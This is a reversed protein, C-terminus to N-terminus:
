VHDIIRKGCHPCFKYPKDSPYQYWGGQCQSCYRRVVPIFEEKESFPEYSTTPIAKELFNVLTHAFDTQNELIKEKQKTKSLMFIIGYCFSITLLFLFYEVIKLFSHLLFQEQNSKKYQLVVCAGSVLLFVSGAVIGLTPLFVHQFEPNSESTATVEQPNQDNDEHYKFHHLTAGSLSVLFFSLLLGFFAMFFKHQKM